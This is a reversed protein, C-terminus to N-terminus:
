VRWRSAPKEAHTRPWYSPLPLRSGPSGSQTEGRWNERPVSMVDHLLPTCEAPDRHERRGLALATRATSLEQRERRETRVDPQRAAPVRPAPRAAHLRRTRPTLLVSFAEVSGTPSRRRLQPTHLAAALELAALAFPDARPTALVTAVRPSMRLCQTLLLLRLIRATFFRSIKERPSNGPHAGSRRPRSRGAGGM